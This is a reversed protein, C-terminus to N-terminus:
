DVFGGTKLVEQHKSKTEFHITIHTEDEVLLRYCATHPVLLAPRITFSGIKSIFNAFREVKL